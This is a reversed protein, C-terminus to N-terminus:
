ESAFHLSSYVHVFLKDQTHCHTFMRWIGKLMYRYLLRGTGTGTGAVM